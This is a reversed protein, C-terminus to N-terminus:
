SYLDDQSISFFPNLHEVTNREKGKNTQKEQSLTNYIQLYHCPMQHCIQHSLLVIIKKQRFYVISIDKHTVLFYFM